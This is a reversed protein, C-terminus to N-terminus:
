VNLAVGQVRHAMFLLPLCSHLSLFPSITSPPLSPLLLSPDFVSMPKRHCLCFCVAVRWSVTPCLRCLYMFVFPLLFASLSTHISTYRSQRSLSVSPSASCLLAQAPRAQLVGTNSIGSVALAIEQCRCTSDAAQSAPLSIHHSPTLWSCGVVVQHISGWLLPADAPSPLPPPPSYFFFSSLPLTFLYLSPFVVFSLM